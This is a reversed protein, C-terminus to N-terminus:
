PVASVKKPRRANRNMERTVVMNFNGSNLMLPNEIRRGLLSSMLGTATHFNQQPLWLRCPTDCFFRLCFNMM